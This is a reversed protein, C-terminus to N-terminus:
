ILKSQKSVSLIRHKAIECYEPNLEIGIWRRNLIQSEKLTTGSGVFPDLVIDEKNSWSKIHDIALKEPFTAPHKYAIKDRQGIGGGNAYRWINFRMGYERVVKREKEILKGDKLRRTNRGWSMHGGWNNKRDMLPNFTKIKGKVFVFMYEFIQHYRNRSPNSFGTKEYIMTDHLKLKCEDKFYLAERFSTGTESGHITADNVVWVMVGGQKLTPTIKKAIEKFKDFSWFESNSQNYTRLDDYPPSTVILDISEKPFKSLIEASDGNYLIGNETEFYRNEKPFKDKWRM